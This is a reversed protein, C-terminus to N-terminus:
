VLTSPHMQTIYSAGRYGGSAAREGQHRLGPQLSFIAVAVTVTLEIRVLVNVTADVAAEAELVMLAVGCPPTSSCTKGFVYLAELGILRKMM